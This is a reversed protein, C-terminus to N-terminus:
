LMNCSFYCYEFITKMRSMQQKKCFLLLTEAITVHKVVAILELWKTRQIIGTYSNNILMAILDFPFSYSVASFGPLAAQTLPPCRIDGTIDQPHTYRQHSFEGLDLGPRIILFADYLNWKFFMRCLFQDISRLITM